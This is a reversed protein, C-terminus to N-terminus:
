QDPERHGGSVDFRQDKTSTPAGAGPPLPGDRAGADALSDRRGAPMATTGNVIAAEVAPGARDAIEGLTYNRKHDWTIYIAEQVTQSKTPRMVDGLMCKDLHVHCNVFGPVLCGSGDFEREAEADVHQEVATMTEGDIAV